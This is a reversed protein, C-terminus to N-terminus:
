THILIACFFNRVMGPAIVNVRIPALDVALGRTLSDTAGAIGAAISWSKHPKVVVSGAPCNSEINEIFKTQQFRPLDGATLTLSGGARIKSNQAVVVPGWFRVDFIGIHMCRLHGHPNDKIMFRQFIGKSSEVDINPFWLNFLDGSTWVVHDVEGIRKVFERLEAVDTADVVEGQVKGPGLNATNLRRVAATVRDANSSVIIILSARSILSTEAVGYGIGSSGGFILIIKNELTAM